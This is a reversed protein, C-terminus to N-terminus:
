TDNSWSTIITLEGPAASNVVRWPTPVADQAYGSIVSGDLLGCYVQDGQQAGGPFRVWFDGRTYLTVPVGPRLWRLGNRFYIAQLPGYVQRVFGPVQGDGTRRCSVFGTRTDYWGFRAVPVGDPQAAIAMAAAQPMSVFPNFNAFEGDIDLFIGPGFPQPDPAFSLEAALSACCSLAAAVDGAEGLTGALTAVSGPGAALLIATSLDASSGALAGIDTAFLVQVSLLGASSSCAGAAVDMVIATALDAAASAVGGAAATLQVGTSLEATMACQGYASAQLTQAAFEAAMTAVGGAAAALQIATTLDGGVLAQAGIDTALSLPIATQLDATVLAQAGVAAAMQISTTMVAAVLGQAGADAALQITTTLAAAAESQAGIATALRVSTTLECAVAAQGGAAAAMVIATTLLATVGAEAYPAADTVIATTLTAAVAAQAGATAALLIPTNGYDAVIRGTKFDDFQITGFIFIGPLGGVLTKQEVRLVETYGSGSDVFLIVYSGHRWAKVKTGVAYSGVATGLQNFSGGIREFIYWNTLDYSVGIIMDGNPQCELAWGGDGDGVTAVTLEVYHDLPIPTVTVGDFFMANDSGSSSALVQNSVLQLPNVGTPTTWDGDLPNANARNFNDTELEEEAFVDSVDASTFCFKTPDGGDAVRTFGGIGPQGTAPTDSQFVSLYIEDGTLFNVVSLQARTGVHRTRIIDGTVFDRSITNAGFISTLFNFGQSGGSNIWEVGQVGGFFAFLSEIQQAFTTSQTSRTLLECEHTAAPNLTPDLFVGCTIETDAGFGDLLAASDDFSGIGAATAIAKGPVSRMDTLLTTIRAQWPTALPNETNPFATNVITM